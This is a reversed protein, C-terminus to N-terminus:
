FPPEDNSVPLAWPDNATTSVPTGIAAAAAPGSRMAGPKGGPVPAVVAYKLETSYGKSGDRKEYERQFLQGTVLVRQGKTVEEVLAEAAKDWVSVNIFPSKDGDEWQDNQPNKRRESAIITVSAVAKGSATFRLEPDATTRFEGTITPLGAM